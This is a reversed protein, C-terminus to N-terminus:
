QRQSFTRIGTGTPRSRYIVVYRVPLRGVTSSYGVPVPSRGSQM